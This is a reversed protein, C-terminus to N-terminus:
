IENENSSRSELEILEELEELPPLLGLDYYNNYEDISNCNENWPGYYEPVEAAENQQESYCFDPKTRQRQLLRSKARERSLPHHKVSDM